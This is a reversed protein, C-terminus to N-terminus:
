GTPLVFLWEPREAGVPRVRWRPLAATSRCPPEPAARIADADLVSRLAGWPSQATAERARGDPDVVTWNEQPM